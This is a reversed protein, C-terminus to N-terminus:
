NKVLKLIKSSSQWNPLTEATQHTTLSTTETRRSFADDFAESSDIADRNVGWVSSDLVSEDEDHLFNAFLMYDNGLSVSAVDVLESEVSAQKM